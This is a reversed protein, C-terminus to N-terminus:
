TLFDGRKKYGLPATFGRPSGTPSWNVNLRGTSEQQGSAM